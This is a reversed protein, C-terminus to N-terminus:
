NEDADNYEECAGFSFSPSMVYCFKTWHSGGLIDEYFIRGHIRVIIKGSKLNEMVAETVPGVSNLMLDTTFQENPMLLGSAAFSKYPGGSEDLVFPPIEGSPKTYAVTSVRTKKAFTRGSNKIVVKFNM